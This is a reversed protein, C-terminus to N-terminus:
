KPGARLVGRPMLGHIRIVAQGAYFWGASKPCYRGSSRWRNDFDAAGPQLAGNRGMRGAQSLRVRPGQGRPLRTPPRSINEGGAQRSRETSVSLSRRPRAGQWLVRGRQSPSGRLAQDATKVRRDPSRGRQESGPTTSPMAHSDSPHNAEARLRSAGQLRQKTGATPRTTGHVSRNSKMQKRKPAREVTLPNAKSNSARGDGRYAGKSIGSRRTRQDSGSKAPQPEDRRHRHDAHRDRAGLASPCQRGSHANV